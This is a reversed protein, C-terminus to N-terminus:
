LKTCYWRGEVPSSTGSSCITGDLVSASRSSTMLGSSASTRLAMMLRMRPVLRDTGEDGGVVVVFADPQWRGRHQELPADAGFVARDGAGGHALDEGGGQGAGAQGIGGAGRQVARRVVEAPHEEGVRDHVAEASMAWTMAPCRSM